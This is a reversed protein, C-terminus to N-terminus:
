ETFRETIKAVRAGLAAATQEDRKDIAPGEVSYDAQAGVGFYFSLRNLGQDNIPLQDLGVWIMGMQMAFTAMSMLTQLKDGSPTSSVTFGAAIKDKWARTGYRDLTSDFFAKTQASVGGMYTPSGFIIADSDDLEELTEDNSWRGNTIHEPRIEFSTVVTDAHSSAGREVAKAAIQTYGTGSYSVIAIKNV